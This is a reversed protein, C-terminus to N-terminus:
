SRLRPTSMDHLDTTTHGYVRACSCHRSPARRTKLSWAPLAQVLPALIAQACKDIDERLPSRRAAVLICCRSASDDRGEAKEVNREETTGSSQGEAVCASGVGVRWTRVASVQFYAHGFKGSM